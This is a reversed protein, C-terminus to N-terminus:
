QDASIISQTAAKLMYLIQGLLIDKDTLAVIIMPHNQAAVSALLTINQCGVLHIEKIFASVMALISSSVAALKSNNYQGLKYVSTLEFGDTSCVMIFHVGRANNIINNILERAHQILENSATRKTVNFM